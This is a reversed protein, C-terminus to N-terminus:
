RGTVSCGHKRASIGSLPGADAGHHRKKWCLFVNSLRKKLVNAGNNMARRSINGSVKRELDQMKRSLESLGTIIVSGM